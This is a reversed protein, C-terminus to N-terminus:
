AVKRNQIDQFEKAFNEIIAEDLAASLSLRLRATGEPVTPPRIARIDFGARQLRAAVSVCEADDGIIIPVIHTGFGGFYQDAKNSIVRLKERAKQGEEGGILELSKQVLFAQLPMPATSYIFARATNILTEVIESSACLLGGAVGIAKGCTHLTILREYGNKSIIEETVGRGTPGCVGSGHAEDVILIADYKEVLAYLEDLPAVDGDMSYVSEIAVWIQERESASAEKLANEFSSVDNHKAKIRRAQSNQIAERASAHVYEDFVITDHRSPLAQFIAANAQFGSSFYLTKPASFFDAAYEELAQHAATHGRLLRSGGAGIAQDKQLFDVAAERLKPHEALGLYDNSTLDVGMPLELCRLRNQAELQALKTQFNQM